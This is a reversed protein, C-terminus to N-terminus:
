FFIHHSKQVESDNSFISKIRPFLIQEEKAMHSILEEAVQTFVFGNRLLISIFTSM